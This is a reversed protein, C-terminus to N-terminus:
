TAIIRRALRRVVDESGRNGARVTPRSMMEGNDAWEIRVGGCPLGELGPRSREAKWPTGVSGRCFTRSVKCRAVKSSM